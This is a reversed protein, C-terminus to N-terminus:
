RYILALEVNNAVRDMNINVDGKSVEALYIRCLYRESALFTRTPTAVSGVQRQQIYIWECALACM